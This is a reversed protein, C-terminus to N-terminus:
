PKRSAEPLPQPPPPSCISSSLPPLPPPCLPLRVAGAWFKPSSSLQDENSTGMEWCSEKQEGLHPYCESLSKKFKDSVLPHGPGTRLHRCYQRGPSVPTSVFVHGRGCSWSAALPGGTHDQRLPPGREPPASPIHASTKMPPWTPPPMGCGRETRMDELCLCFLCTFVSLSPGFCQHCGEEQHQGSHPLATVVLSRPHVHM